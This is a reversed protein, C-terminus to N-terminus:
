WHAAEEEFFKIAADRSEKMRLEIAQGLLAPDYVPLWLGIAEGFKARLIWGSVRNTNLPAHTVIVDRDWNHQQILVDGRDIVLGVGSGDHTMYQQGRLAVWGFITMWGSAPRVLDRIQRYCHALEIGLEGSLADDRLSKVSERYRDYLEWFKAADFPKEAEKKWDDLNMENREKQFLGKAM